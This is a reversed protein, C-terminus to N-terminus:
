RNAVFERLSEPNYKAGTPDAVVVPSRLLVKRTGSFSNWNYYGFKFYPKTTGTYYGVGGAHDFIQTGDVWAQVFGSGGPDLKFKVVVDMWRGFRIPQDASRTSYSNSQTPTSSSSTRADVWWTYGGKGAIVSIAPSLGSTGAHLQMAFMANESSPLGGWDYAYVSFAAWYIKNTDIVAPFKIESRKSGSTTPDDYALQFALAKRTSNLPDAQKGLRLTEGNPLVTGNIGSEPIQNASLYTNIVQTNYGSQEVFPAGAQAQHVIDAADIAPVNTVNVSRQVSATKGLNDTAVVTLTHAGNAFATTQIACQYPAAAKSTLLTDGLYFDVKAVAGDADTASAECGTSNVYGSLTAGAAPALVNLAPPNIALTNQVSVPIQVSTSAGAADYAVAKLTYAGNPFLKSDFGCQWRAATDTNLKTANLYFDVKSIGDGAVECRDSNNYGGVLTGGSAPALFAVTPGNRIAIDRTAETTQGASNYAVAKLTYSGNSYKTTDIWCGLGNDLNGDTNTWQGNLYFMVKAINSGTVVCQPPGQVNGSLAGGVAPAQWSVTPTSSGNRINVDIRTSRSTGKSDYAVARLVHRGDPFRRTDLSCNWPSSSETNLATSGLYFRVSRINSGRAECASGSLSGSITAEDRPAAFYVTPAAHASTLAAALLWGGAIEKYHM